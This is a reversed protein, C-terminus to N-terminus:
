EFIPQLESIATDRYKKGRIAELITLKMWAAEVPRNFRILQNNITDQLVVVIPEGSSFAVELRRVRGNSSFLSQSKAYGNTIRMGALIRPSTWSIVLWEGIGDGEVNEVWATSDDRDFLNRPGYHAVNIGVTPLISSTCYRAEPSNACV